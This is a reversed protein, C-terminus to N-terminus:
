YRYLFLGNKQQVAERGPIRFAYSVVKTPRSLEATLKRDLQQMYRAILFVYVGEVEPLPAGWYDGWYIRVQQRYPWTRVRSYLWLLPNIEYGIGEIGQRAAAALFSGTGSGLDLVTEGPQLDLLELATEQTRRRTPLWPAGRVISLTLLGAAGAAVVIWM